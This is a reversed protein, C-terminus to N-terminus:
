VFNNREFREADLPAHSIVSAALASEELLVDAVEPDLDSRLSLTQLVEPMKCTLLERQLAGDLQARSAVSLRLREDGTRVMKRLESLAYYSRIAYM